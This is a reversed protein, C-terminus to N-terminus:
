YVGVISVWCNIWKMMGNWCMSEKIDSGCPHRISKDPNILIESNIYFDNNFSWSWNFFCVYRWILFYFIYRYFLFPAAKGTDGRTRHWLWGTREPIVKSMKNGKWHKFMKSHYTCYDIVIWIHETFLKNKTHNSPLSSCCCLHEPYFFLIRGDLQHFFLM